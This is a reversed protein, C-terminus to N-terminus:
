RLVAVIMIMMRLEKWIFYFVDGHAFCWTLPWLNMKTTQTVMTVHDAHDDHDDYDDTDNSVLTVDTFDETPIEVWWLWMLLTLTVQLADQPAFYTQWCFHAYDKYEQNWGEWNQQQDQSYMCCICLWIIHIPLIWFCSKSIWMILWYGIMMLGCVLWWWWIVTRMMMMMIMLCARSLESSKNAPHAKSFSCTQAWDVGEWGLLACFNFSIYM